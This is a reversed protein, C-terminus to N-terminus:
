SSIGKILKRKEKLLTNHLFIDDPEKTDASIKKKEFKKQELAQLCDQIIKDICEPDFGPNLLLRTILKRQTDDTNELLLDVTVTEKLSQFTLFISKITNDQLSDIDIKTFVSPIKEPFALLASLLLHEEKNPPIPVPSFSIKDKSRSKKRMKNLVSRLISENTGSRDSLERLIGDALIPDHMGSIMEVAERVTETQDKKSTHLFFEIASMSKLLIKQFEAAGYKGLFSDPDEGEPLLLIKAQFDNEFVIPLSRKAAAIGAEDGDFILIVKKTLPKLRKLHSSTLATGLPAVATKFDNQHCLIVDFYGEVIIAFGKKRIEDKSFSIGFLTEGKKFVETERSNIYKPTYNNLVRGGFAIVDGRFNYIPFIIRDRFWDRVEHVSPDYKNVSSVILGADTLLNISYGSSRMHKLLADRHNTAYGLCFTITSDINIGRNKLYASATKSKELNKIFFNLAEKNVGLIMERKSATKHDSKKQSIHIGAKQALYRIAESFSLNEHKILFSVADGGTGCGFCHFIQKSPSVVFSPTKEAHFPCLGKYNQGSKKLPVYDSIFEVIDIKSKIEELLNASNM